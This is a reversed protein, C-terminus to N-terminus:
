AARALQSVITRHKPSGMARLFLPLHLFGAVIGSTIRHLVDTTTQKPAASPITLRFYVDTGREKRTGIDIQPDEEITEPSVTRRLSEGEDRTDFIVEGKDLVFDAYATYIALGLGGAIHEVLHTKTSVDEQMEKFLKRLTTRSIGVGNDSVVLQYTNPGTQEFRVHVMGGQNSGQIYGVVVAEVANDIAYRINLRNFRLVLFRGKHVTLKPIRTRQQQLKEHIADVIEQGANKWTKPDTSVPFPNEYLVVPFDSPPTRRVKRSDPGTMRRAEHPFTMGHNKREPDLRARLWDRARDPNQISTQPYAGGEGLVNASETGPSTLGVRMRLRELTAEHVSYTETDPEVHIFGRQKYFDMRPEALETFIFYDLGRRRYEAVFAYRGQTLQLDILSKDQHFQGESFDLYYRKERVKLEIWVHKHWHDGLVKYGSILEIEVGRGFREKLLAKGYSSIARCIAPYHSFYKETMEKQLLPSIKELFLYIEDMPPATKTPDTVLGSGFPKFIFQVLHRLFDLYNDLAQKERNIFRRSNAVVIRNLSVGHTVLFDKLKQLDRAIVPPEFDYISHWAYRPLWEDDSEDSIPTRLSYTDADLTLWIEKIESDQLTARINQLLRRQTTPSSWNEISPTTEDAQYYSPFWIYYGLGEDEIQQGWSGSPSTLARDDHSDLNLVLIKGGELERVRDRILGVIEGHEELPVQWQPQVEAPSLSSTPGTVAIDDEQPLASRSSPLPTTKWPRLHHLDFGWAEDGRPTFGYRNYFHGSIEGVGYAYFDKAGALLATRMSIDLLKSGIHRHRYGGDVFIAKNSPQVTLARHISARRNLANVTMHLHGIKKDDDYVSFMHHSQLWGRELSYRLTLPLEDDLPVIFEGKGSSLCSKFIHTFPEGEIKTLLEPIPVRFATLQALSRAPLTAFFKHGSRAATGAFALAQNEYFVRSLTRQSISACSRYAAWSEVPELLALLALPIAILRQSPNSM